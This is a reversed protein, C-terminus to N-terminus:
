AQTRMLQPAQLAGRAISMRSDTVNDHIVVKAVFPANSQWKGAYTLGKTTACQLDFSAGDLSVCVAFEHQDSTQFQVCYRFTHLGTPAEGDWVSYWMDRSFSKPPPRIVTQNYSAADGLYDWTQVQPAVPRLMDSACQPVLPSPETTWVKTTNIVVHICLANNGCGGVTNCGCKIPPSAACGAGPLWFCRDPCSQVSKFSDCTPPAPPLPPLRPTFGATHNVTGIRSSAGYEYAICLM